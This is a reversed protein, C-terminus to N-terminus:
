RNKNYAQRVDTKDTLSNVENNIEKFISGFSRNNGIRVQELIKLHSIFSQDVDAIEQNKLQWQRLQFSHRNQFSDLHNKVLLLGREITSLNQEICESTKTSNEINQLGLCAENFYNMCKNVFLVESEVNSITDVQVYHSNLFQIAALSM